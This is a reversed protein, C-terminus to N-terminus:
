PQPFDVQTTTGGGATNSVTLVGQLQAVLAQIIKSGLGSGTESKGATSGMGIGDDAVTLRLEAAGVRRLTVAIRGQERGKFAHKFSNTVIENVLLSTTVMASLDLHIPDIDVSVAVHEAGSALVMDDILAKFYAAIPMELSAPDYLRRHIRSMISIREQAMKLVAVSTVGGQEVQRRHMGLLSSVFMMNNAVRHQLEGFMARQLDYLGSVRERERALDKLTTQLRAIFYVICAAISIFFGLALASQADLAFANIPPIFWYWAAITSLAACFVAPRWGAVYATIIVAPFFTLFPFGPPLHGVVAFRTLTAIGFNAAAFAYALAPHRHVITSLRGQRRGGAAAIDSNDTTVM